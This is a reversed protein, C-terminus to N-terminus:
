ERKLFMLQDFIERLLFYYILTTFIVFSIAIIAVIIDLITKGSFYNSFNDYHESM